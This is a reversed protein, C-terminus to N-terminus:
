SPTVSSHSSSKSACLTQRGRRRRACALGEIPSVRSRSFARRGDRFVVAAIRCERRANAHLGPRTSPVYTRLCRAKQPKDHPTRLLSSPSRTRRHLIFLERMVLFLFLDSRFNRRSRRSRPEDPAPTRGTRESRPARARQTRVAMARRVPNSNHRLAPRPNNAPARRPPALLLLAPHIVHGAMYVCVLPAFFLVRRTSTISVCTRRNPSKSCRSRATFPTFM